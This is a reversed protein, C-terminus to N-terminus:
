KRHQDLLSLYETVEYNAGATKPFWSPPYLGLANCITVMRRPAAAARVLAPQMTELFPLAMAVGSARLFTRRNIPKIM